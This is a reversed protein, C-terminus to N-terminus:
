LDIAMSEKNSKSSISEKHEFDNNPEQQHQRNSEDSHAQFVTSLKPLEMTLAMASSFASQKRKVVSKHASKLRKDQDLSNVNRKTVGQLIRYEKDTLKRAEFRKLMRRLSIKQQVSM